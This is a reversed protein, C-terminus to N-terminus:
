SNKPVKHNFTVEAAFFKKGHLLGQYTILSKKKKQLFFLTEHKLYRSKQTKTIDQSTMIPM